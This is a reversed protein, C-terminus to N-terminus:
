RKILLLVRVQFKLFSKQLSPKSGRNQQFACNAVNQIMYEKAADSLLTQNVTFQVHRSRFGASHFRTELNLPPSALRLFVFGEWSPVLVVM